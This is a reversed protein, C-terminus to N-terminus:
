PLIRQLLKCLPSLSFLSSACPSPFTETNSKNVHCLLRWFIGRHNTADPLFAATALPVTEPKPSSILLCSLTFLFGQNTILPWMGWGRFCTRAKHSALFLSTLLRLSSKNHLTNIKYKKFKPHCVWHKPYLPKFWWCLKLLVSVLLSGNAGLHTPKLICCTCMERDMQFKNPCVKEKTGKRVTGKKPPYEDRRVWIFYKKLNQTHAWLDKPM